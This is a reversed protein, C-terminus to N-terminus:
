FNIIMRLEEVQSAARTIKERNSLYLIEGTKPVVSSVPAVAANLVTNTNNEVVQIVSSTGDTTSISENQIFDGVVSDIWLTRTNADVLRVRGTSGTTSGTITDDESFIVNSELTIKSGLETSLPRYILGSQRFTGEPFSGNETGSINLKIMKHVGGLEVRADTGHGGAPSLIPTLIASVGGGVNTLTITAYTYGSGVNTVDVTKIGGTIPDVTVSVECGSGDGVVTAIPPSLPNYGSGKVTIEVSHIAGDISNQQTQWQASGDNAEITYVPIWDSTMYNFVDTSRITYMYKWVYGDPTKFDTVQQSTPKNSSVSNNNNSLCKYVNFEDTLVYFQYRTGSTKRGDIMNLRSDYADYAVGSSWDIRPIVSSIENPQIRKLALINKYVSVKENDTEYPTDPLEEDAWPTSKGIFLYTPQTVIRKAFTESNVIRMQNTIISPM